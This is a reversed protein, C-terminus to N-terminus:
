DDPSSTKNFTEFTTFACQTSIYMLCSNIVIRRKTKKENKKEKKAELTTKNKNEGKSDANRTKM